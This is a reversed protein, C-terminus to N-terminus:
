PHGGEDTRRRLTALGAGAVLILIMLQVLLGTLDPHIGMWGIEPFPVPRPTLYGSAVLVYIGSGAFSIALGCLLLSSVAFFPGLPLRLVTRNMLVAAAAVGAMGAGAGGWVEARHRGSELLLAQTFLIVEAAERYVALFALGSLILLSRGSLSKEVKRKLYAIWHRSEAKSIMWFSVSFLVGAAVLAVLAEMLEREDNRLTILRDLAWWTVVGCPLAAIWGVHIYRAADARGLRRVGALLAGVLLAAEIGERFYIIAAAAFPVVPREKGETVQFLLGDLAEAQATVVGPSSGRAMAARLDRFGAEVSLTGEPDRARLTPELPEFGQLYADLILRDADLRRGERYATTAQRLLRRARDVSAGVPSEQFPAEERLYALAAEPKEYAEARLSELLERDSRTAMEGLPMAVPGKAEQGEHGLRFVYFALSWREPPSLSDFSAMATGPVGFTLANYVRYPSLERLREPDRFSAPHPNLEKARPTSADGREGHCVACNQAYLSQAQALSPHETPTTQLHFREVATDRAEACARAVDRADAKAKVLAELEALRALLSDNPPAPGLIRAALARADAAFRLQEEYESPAQVVGGKVAMGYDGKVYDVLAVLRQADGGDRAPPPPARRPRACSGALLGLFIFKFIFKLKVILGSAIM